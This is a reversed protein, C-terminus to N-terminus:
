FNLTKLRMERSELFTALNRQAWFCSRLFPSTFHTVLSMPAMSVIASTTTSVTEISHNPAMKADSSIQSSISKMQLLFIPILSDFFLFLKWIQRHFFFRFNFGLPHVGVLPSTSNVSVVVVAFLFSSVCHLLTIQNTSM